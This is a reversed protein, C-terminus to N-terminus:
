LSPRGAAQDLGAAELAKALADSALAHAQRVAAVAAGAGSDGALVRELRELAEALALFGLTGAAGRDRHTRRILADRPGADEVVAGLLGALRAELDGALTRLRAPGLATMLADFRAECVVPAVRRM